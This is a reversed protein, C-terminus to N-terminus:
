RDEESSLQSSPPTANNAKEAYDAYLRLADAMERAEDPTAWVLTDKRDDNRAYITVVHPETMSFRDHEVQLVWWEDECSKNAWERPIQSM